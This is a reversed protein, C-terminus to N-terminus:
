RKKEVCLYAGRVGSLLKNGRSGTDRPGVSADVGVDGIAGM